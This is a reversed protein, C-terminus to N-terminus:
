QIGIGSLCLYMVFLAIDLSLVVSHRPNFGPRLLLGSRLEFPNPKIRASLKNQSKKQILASVRVCYLVQGKLEREKFKGTGQGTHVMCCLSSFVTDM